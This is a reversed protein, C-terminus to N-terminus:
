HRALQSPLYPLRACGTHRSVDPHLHSGVASNRALPITRWPHKYWIAAWQYIRALYFCIAMCELAVASLFLQSYQPSSTIDNATHSTTKKRGPEYILIRLMKVPFTIGTSLRNTATHVNKSGRDILKEGGFCKM